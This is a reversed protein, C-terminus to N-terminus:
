CFDNGSVTMSYWVSQSNASEYWRFLLRCPCFFRRQKGMHRAATLRVGEMRTCATVVVMLGVWGVGWGWGRGRAGKWARGEVRAKWVRRSCSIRFVVGANPEQGTSRGYRWGQARGGPRDWAGGTHEAWVHGCTCRPQTTGIAV